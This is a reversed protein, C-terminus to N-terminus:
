YRKNVKPCISKLATYIHDDNMYGYLNDCVWTTLGAFYMVDFCFRKQLDNVKDANVFNGEEYDHVFDLLNPCTNLFSDIESKLYEYHKQSIKM